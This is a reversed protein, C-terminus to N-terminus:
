KALVLGHLQVLYLWENYYKYKSETTETDNKTM